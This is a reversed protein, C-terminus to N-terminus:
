GVTEVRLGGMLTFATIHIRKQTPGELSNDVQVRRGGMISVGDVGVDVGRPVTITTGGMVAIVTVRTEGEDLIAQTFDLRQGGLLSVAVINHDARWRGRPTSGGGMISVYFM